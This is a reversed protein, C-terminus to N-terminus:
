RRRSIPPSGRCRHRRCGSSPARSRARLRRARRDAQRDDLERGVQQARAADLRGDARPRGGEAPGGEAGGQRAARVTSKNFTPELYSAVLFVRPSDPLKAYLDGGTPTKDGLLVRREANQGKVKFRVDIRAPDLGFGKLDAPKEDVVRQSRSRPSTPPSARCSAPTPRPRCRSWSRGTGHRVEEAADGRGGRHDPGGRHRRGQAGGFAKEKRRQGGRAGQSRPLLHLRRAGGAGAGPRATSVFRGM